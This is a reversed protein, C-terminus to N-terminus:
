HAATPSWNAVRAARWSCAVVESVVLWQGGVVAM